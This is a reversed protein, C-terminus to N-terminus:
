AVSDVCWLYVAIAPTVADAAFIPEKLWALSSKIQFARSAHAPKFVIPAGADDM